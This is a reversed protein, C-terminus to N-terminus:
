GLWGGNPALELWRLSTEISSELSHALGLGMAQAKDVNPAYFHAPAGDSAGLIKPEPGGAKAAILRALAEVSLADPSGVNVAAGAPGFVMLWLLWAAMDAPHMYSRSPKGDGHILITLGRSADRLFNGAAFHAELPLYPGLFAFPRAVCCAVAGSRAACLAEAVRKSSGYAQASDLPDPASQSADSERAAGAIADRKGYVAGSSAFLMRAGARECLRLMADTGLAAALIMASPDLANTKADSSAAMHLCFDFAGPEISGFDEAGAKIWSAWPAAGWRPHRREFAEPDRSVRILEVDCGDLRLSELAAHVWAGFFGTAGTALVRKGHLARALLAREPLAELSRAAAQEGMRRAAQEFEEPCLPQTRMTNEIFTFSLVPFQLQRLKSTNTNSHLWKPNRRIKNKLFKNTIRWLL